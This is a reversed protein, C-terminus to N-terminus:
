MRVAQGPLSASDYLLHPPEFDHSLFSSAEVSAAQTAAAFAAQGFPRRSMVLDFRMVARKLPLDSLPGYPPLKQAGFRGSKLLHLDYYKRLRPSRTLGTKARRSVSGAHNHDPSLGNLVRSIQNTGKQSRSGIPGRVNLIQQTQAGQFVLVPLLLRSDCITLPSNFGQCQSVALCPPESKM